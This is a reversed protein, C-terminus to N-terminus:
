MITKENVILHHNAQKPLNCRDLSKIHLCIKLDALLALLINEKKKEFFYM